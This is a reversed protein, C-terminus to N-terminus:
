PGYLLTEEASKAVGRAFPAGLERYLGDGQLYFVHKGQVDKLPTSVRWALRLMMAAVPELSTGVNVVSTEPVTAEASLRYGWAVDVLLPEVTVATLYRGRGDVRGGHARLVQYRVTVVRAGYLNKFAAEYVTGEVPRWGEMATWDKVGAPLAAAYQTKVDVVPKNDLVVKWAARGANVIADLEPAAAPGGLPAPAPLDKFSSSPGIREVEISDEDVTFAKPDLESRSIEQASFQAAAALPLLLSSLALARM